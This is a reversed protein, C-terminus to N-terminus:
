LSSTDRIRAYIGDLKLEPYGHAYYEGNHDLYTSIWCNREYFDDYILIEVPSSTTLEVGKCTYRGSSNKILIGEATIPSLSISTDRLTKRLHYNARILVELDFFDEDSLSQRDLTEGLEDVHEIFPKLRSLIGKLEQLPQNIKSEM